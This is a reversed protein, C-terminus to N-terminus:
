KRLSPMTPSILSTLAGILLARGQKELLVFHRRVPVKVVYDLVVLEKKLEAPQSM